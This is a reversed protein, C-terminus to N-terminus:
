SSEIGDRLYKLCKSFNLEWASCNGSNHLVAMYSLNILNFHKDEFGFAFYPFMKSKGFSYDLFILQISQSIDWTNQIRTEEGVTDGNILFLSFLFGEGLSQIILCPLKRIFM